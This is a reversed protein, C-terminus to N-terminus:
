RFRLTGRAEKDSSLNFTPPRDREVLLKIM